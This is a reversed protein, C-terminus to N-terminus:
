ASILEQYTLVGEENVEFKRKIKEREGTQNLNTVM